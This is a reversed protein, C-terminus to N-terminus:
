EVAAHGPAAGLSFAEHITEAVVRGAEIDIFLYREGGVNVTTNRTTVIYLRAHFIVPGIVKYGGGLTAIYNRAIELALSQEADVPAGETKGQYWVGDDKFSRFRNQYVALDSADQYDVALGLVDVKHIMLGPPTTPAACAIMLMPPGLWLALM